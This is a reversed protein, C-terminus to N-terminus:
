KRKGIQDILNVVCSSIEQQMDVIILQTKCKKQLKEYYSTDFQAQYEMYHEPVLRTREKNRKKCVHLPCKCYIVIIEKDKLAALVQPLYHGNAFELIDFKKHSFSEVYKSVVEDLLATNETVSGYKALYPQMVELIDYAILGTKEIFREILTTKGSGSIGIFIYIKEREM